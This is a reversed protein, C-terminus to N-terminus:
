MIDIGAGPDVREYGHLRTPEKGVGLESAAAARRSKQGETRRRHCWDLVGDANCRASGM